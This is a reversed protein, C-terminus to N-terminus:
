GVDTGRRKRLTGIPRISADVGDEIGWKGSSARM